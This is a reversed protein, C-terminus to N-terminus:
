VQSMSSRATTSSSARIEPDAGDTQATAGPLAGIDVTGSPAYIMADKDIEIRSSDSGITIKSARFDALSAGDQPITEKGDDPTIALTAGAGIQIDAGTLSIYGNRSVSTTAELVGQEIVAGNSTAGLSLYGQPTNIIGEATNLVYDQDATDDGNTSFLTFGRVDPDSDASGTSRSLKVDRGSQLSM